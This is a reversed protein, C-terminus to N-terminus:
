LGAVTITSVGEDKSIVIQAPFMDKVEAIHTVVLIKAFDGRISNIARILRERSQEDQSGFGEDIILTELRAGSRRALLRALAVRLAFNVKFSEGGSYLEYSRTGLDDAILIDLTEVPLGKATRHQTVLGVHMRNDSLRALIRNAEAEIEPIANDIIIAQIGKKGYIDVLRQLENLETLLKLLESRKADLEDKGAQLQGLRGALLSSKRSLEDRETELQVCRAQLHQETQELEAQTSLLEARETIETELRTAERRKSEIQTTQENFLSEIGPTEVLARELENLKEAIPMLQSLQQKLKQHLERDYPRQKMEEELKTLESRAADEFSDKELLQKLEAVKAQRQPIESDLESLERLDSQLQQWRFEANRQARIQSQLNSFIIPDFDLRAIEGKIRVLSEREIQAYAQQELKKRCLELDSQLDNRNQEARELASQKENFEGIRTDLNSREELRRRLEIYHKRLASREDDLAQMRDRISSMERHVSDSDDHYRQLVAMRDVIPSRCLPCSSLDPTETLEREKEENEKIHRQWQALQQALADHEAKLKLGREEILEFENELRDLEDSKRKLEEQEASLMQRSQILQDLEALLATKQQVEAELRLRAEVVMTHLEDIRQTLTSFSERRRAMDQEESLLSRYARYAEETADKTKISKELKAKRTELNKIAAEFHEIEVEIRGGATAIRSRLELRRGNLDHYHMATNDMDEVTKKLHLFEASQARINEQDGIISQLLQLKASTEEHRRLLSAIDSKLEALRAVSSDQRADALKIESLKQKVSEYKERTENLESECRTLSETTQEVETISDLLGKELEGANTLSSELLQIRAKCSRGEERALEQLKDFYSLGLIEALVEKRESPSRITFEEARGQRLYVSSVFSDYDMRLLTKLREQTDRLSTANLSLWGAGTIIRDDQEDTDSDVDPEGPAAAQKLAVSSTKGSSQMEQLRSDAAAASERQQGAAADSLQNPESRLSQRWKGPEGDWVLVDLSGRTAIKQGGKGFSKQRSRRVRYIQGELGFCLDVRMDVQGLRILEDSPARGTDWLAWSIADLLASKGAGNAGSLCAVSIPGLDLSADAYSM